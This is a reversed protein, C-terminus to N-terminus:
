AAVADPSREAPPAARALFARAEDYAREILDATHGFDMPHVDVPCPVPLVILDARSRHLAIDVALRQHVLLTMAHVVMGIAGRPARPLECVQGTSLVYIREAGLEVAHSIPTNNAVGGDMLLRGDWDVPPFVGPIAASALVAEVLPGDSLRREEGTRVDAAIVHLPTALDELRDVAMHPEVLRRLGGSPVLGRGLGSFGTFGVLPNFPFVDGRRVSLWLDALEDITEAAPAGPRSAIFAGNLAGVSTAVILDPAIAHEALAALMGVQLAGLSAGGSLVFATKTAM